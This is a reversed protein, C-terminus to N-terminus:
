DDIDSRYLELDGYFGGYAMTLGVPYGEHTYRYWTDQQWGNSESDVKSWGMKELLDNIESPSATPFSKRLDYILTKNKSLLIFTIITQMKNTNTIYKVKEYMEEEKTQTEIKCPCWEPVEPIESDWEVYGVILKRKDMTKTCWYDHAYGAGQTRELQVFPCKDCKEIEFGILM